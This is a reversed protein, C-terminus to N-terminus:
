KPPPPAASVPPTPSVPSGLLVHLGLDTASPEVASNILVVAARGKAPELALMARYGGMQGGHLLLERGPVPHVVEGALRRSSASAGEGPVRVSLTTKM